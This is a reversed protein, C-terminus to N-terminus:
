QWLLQSDMYYELFWEFVEKEKKCERKQQGIWYVPYWGIRNNTKKSSGAILVYGPV